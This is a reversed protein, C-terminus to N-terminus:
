IAVGWKNALYLEVLNIESISLGRSYMIIEAIDGDFSTADAHLQGLHCTSSVSCKSNDSDSAFLEGNIYIRKGINNLTAVAITPVPSSYADVTGDILNATQDLKFTTNSPYGFHLNQNTGFSTNADGMLYSDNKDSRRQHAIFITYESNNLFSGDYILKDNSGDFRVASKNNMANAVILPQQVGTGNSANNGKGSKDDWQSIASSSETITSSDSADLWLQLNSLRQPHFKPKDFLKLLGRSM